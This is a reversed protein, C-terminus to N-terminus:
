LDIDFSDETFDDNHLIHPMIIQHLQEIHHVHRSLASDDTVDHQHQIHHLRIQISHQATFLLQCQLVSRVKQVLHESTQFVDVTSANNMSIDFWWVGQQIFITIELEPLGAYFKSKNM